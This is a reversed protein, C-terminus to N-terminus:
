SGSRRCSGESGVAKITQIQLDFDYTLLMRPPQLRLPNATPEDKPLPSM